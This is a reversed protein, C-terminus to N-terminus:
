SEPPVSLGTSVYNAVHEAESGMPSHWFLSHIGIVIQPPDAQEIVGFEEVGVFGEFVDPARCRGFVLLKKLAHNLDRYGKVVIGRSVTHAHSRHQFAGDPIKGLRRPAKPMDLQRGQKLGKALPAFREVM